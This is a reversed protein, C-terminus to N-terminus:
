MDEGMLLETLVPYEPDLLFLVLWSIYPSPSALYRRAPAQVGRVACVLGDLCCFWLESGEVM